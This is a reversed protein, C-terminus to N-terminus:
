KYIYTYINCCEMLFNNRKREKKVLKINMPICSFYFYISYHVFFYISHKLFLFLNVAFIFTYPVGGGCGCIFRLSFSVLMTCM